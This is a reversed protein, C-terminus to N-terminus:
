YEIIEDRRQPGRLKNLTRPAVVDPVLLKILFYM